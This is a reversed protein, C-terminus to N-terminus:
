KWVEDPIIFEQRGYEEPLLVGPLIIVYLTGNEIDYVQEKLIALLKELEWETDVGVMSGDEKKEELQRCIEECVARYVAEEELLESDGIWNISSQDLVSETCSPMESKPAEPAANDAETWMGDNSKVGGPFVLVVAMAAAAAMCSIQVAKRRQRKVKRARFVAEKIEQIGTPPIPIKEYEAKWQELREKDSM